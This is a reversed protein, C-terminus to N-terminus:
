EKKANKKKKWCHLEVQNRHAEADHRDLAGLRPEVHGHVALAVEVSRYPGRVSRRLSCVLDRM